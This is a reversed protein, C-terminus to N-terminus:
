AYMEELGTIDAEELTRKDTDAEPTSWFMSVSRCQDSYIDDLGNAHGLEHTAVSQLDLRKEAVCREANAECDEFQYHDNFVTHFESLRRQEVPGDFVGYTITLALTQSEDSGTAENDIRAFGVSNEGTPHTYVIKEDGNRQDVVGLAPGMPEIGLSDFVCRWADVAREITRLVMSPRLGSRNAPYLVYGHPTRWVTGNSIAVSCPSSYGGGGSSRKFHTHKEIRESSGLSAARERSRSAAAATTHVFAYGHLDGHKGLYYTDHSIRGAAPLVIRATSEGSGTATEIEELSMRRRRLPTAAIPIWQTSAAGTARPPVDARRLLALADAAGDDDDDHATAAVAVHRRHLIALEDTRMASLVLVSMIGTFALAVVGVLIVYSFHLRASLPTTKDGRHTSAAASVVHSSPRFVNIKNM